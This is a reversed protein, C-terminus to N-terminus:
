TFGINNSKRPPTVGGMGLYTEDGNQRWKVIYNM